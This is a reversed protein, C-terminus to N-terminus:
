EKDCWKDVLQQADSLESARKADDWYVREGKDNVDYM